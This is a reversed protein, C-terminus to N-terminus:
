SFDGLLDPDGLSCCMPDDAIQDVGAVQFAHSDATAVAISDVGVDRQPVGGLFTLLDSREEREQACGILSWPLSHSARDCRKPETVSTAVM